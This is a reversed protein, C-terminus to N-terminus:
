DGLRSYWAKPAENIRQHKYAARAELKPLVNYLWHFQWDNGDYTFPNEEIARNFLYLDIDDFLLDDCRVVIEQGEVLMTIGNVM